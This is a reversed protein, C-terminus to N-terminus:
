EAETGYVLPFVLCRQRLMREWIIFLFTFLSVLSVTSGWRSFLNLGHLSDSYDSYRRPIGLLGM